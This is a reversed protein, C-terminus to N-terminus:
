RTQRKCVREPKGRAQLRLEGNGITATATDGVFQLGQSPAILVMPRETEGERIDLGLGQDKFDVLLSGGDQCLFHHRGRVGGPHETDAAHLEQETPEQKPTESSCGALTVPCALLLVPMGRVLRHTWPVVAGTKAQATM